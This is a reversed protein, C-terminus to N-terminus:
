ENKVLFYQINLFHYHKLSSGFRNRFYICQLSSDIRKRLMSGLCGGEAECRSSPIYSAAVLKGDKFAAGPLKHEKADCDISKRMSPHNSSGSICM